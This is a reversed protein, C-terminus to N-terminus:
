RWGKVVVDYGADVKEKAYDFWIADRGLDRMADHLAGAETQAKGEPDLFLVRVPDAQLSATLCLLAILSHRMTCSVVDFSRQTDQRSKHSILCSEGGSSRREAWSCRARKTRRM